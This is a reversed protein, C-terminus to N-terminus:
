AETNGYVDITEGEALTVYAKKRLVTHGSVVGRKTFRSKNKRPMIATNVSKVGVGYMEEIAKKIELKNSKPNVLFTYQRAKLKDSSLYTAKETIGPRILIEQAM